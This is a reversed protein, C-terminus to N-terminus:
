QALKLIEYVENPGIDGREGFTRGRSALREVCRGCADPPIGFESLKTRAGLSRFLEVMSEIGRLSRSEDSGESIGWIREAYQVLKRQKSKQQYLLVAPLVVALSEGHAIGYLATLEHAISHSAWDQPVGCGILGNLAQTACWMISARVDYNNPTNFVKLGEEGLTSLIGEAQRDQLPAYVPYTAYQEMVHCYADLIGNRTQGEPLSYTTEPDLVSFAPMIFDSGFGLKEKTSLKSIVSYSNMESGTAPLTLVTGLPLARDITVRKGVIDWPDEGKFFSAASIFKTADIVSGGGVALLFNIKHERALRVGDLCTEYSPNPEIGGFEFISYENLAAQVQDYVGNRKISGQGYVVMVRAERPILRRLEVITGKGFVVKTSCFYIFNKM